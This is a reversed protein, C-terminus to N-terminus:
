CPFNRSNHWSEFFVVFCDKLNYVWIKILNYLSLSPLLDGSIGYSKLKKILGEHWVRDFAKSIDCFILITSLREDLNLYSLCNPSVTQQRRRMTMSQSFSQNSALQSLYHNVFIPDIPLFM